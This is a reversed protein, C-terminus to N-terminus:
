GSGPTPTPTTSTPTPTGVREFVARCTDGKSSIRLTCVPNTSGACGKCPRDFQAAEWRKFKYGNEPTAEVRIDTGTFYETSCYDDCGKVRGGTPYDATAYGKGWVELGFMGVMGQMKDCIINDMGDYPVLDAEELMRDEEQKHFADHEADELVAM